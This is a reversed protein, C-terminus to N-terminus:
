KSEHFVAYAAAELEGCESLLIGDEDHIKYIQQNGGISAAGDLGLLLTYMTDTLVVDFVARLQNTQESTLGMANIMVGVQTRAPVAMFMSLLDEKLDLWNRAFGEADM